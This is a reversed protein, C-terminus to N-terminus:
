SLQGYRRKPLRSKSPKESSEKKRGFLSDFLSLSAAFVIRRIRLAPIMIVAAVMVALMTSPSLRIDLAPIFGSLLFVIFGDFHTLVFLCILALIIYYYKMTNSTYVERAHFALVVRM